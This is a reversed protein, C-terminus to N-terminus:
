GCAHRETRRVGDDYGLPLGDLPDRAPRHAVQRLPLACCLPMILTLPATCGVLYDNISLVIVFCIITVLCYVADAVICEEFYQHHKKQTHNRSRVHPSGGKCVQTCM